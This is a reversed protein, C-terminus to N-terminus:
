EAVLRALDLFEESREVQEVWAKPLASLGCRVGVLAGALTALSDSDGPTNAGELIAAKPDDRHRVFIYVAAAIAEHAAWGELRALTVEPGVGTQAEDIAPTMMDATKPSYRRAAAVMENVVVSMSDGRLLRAVGIAMAGCAALAIPDRHTLKSHAVAWEEVKDLDAHFLLGFPYARMVSGCGGANPAGAESWHRGSALVRCGSLCANGPARHGGQPAKSWQVFRKAITQMTGDLGLNQARGELLGLIVAEAMQTDDTYPAFKKGDREWFLEFNQVGHPGYKDHIEAMSKFETPHGMADGIAAAMVAGAIMSHPVVANPEVPSQQTRKTAAGRRTRAYENIFGEQGKTEPSRKSRCRHLTAIAEEGSMGTEVLLCGGVTGARGLGGACHIVVSKGAGAADVIVKVIEEVPAQQPLVGGDPIPLRHVEIGRNEAEEVLNPVKLRTLEHDELLCILVDTDFTSVLRDLDLSLDRRWMFGEQSLQHKGPALTLGVKGNFPSPLFDVRIPSTISTKTTKM